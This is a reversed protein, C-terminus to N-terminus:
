IRKEVIQLIDKSEINCGDVSVVKRKQGHGKVIEIKSKPIKLKESLFKILEENAANDVPPAKLKIKLSDNYIGVIESKSSRPIVYINLIFTNNKEQFWLSVM